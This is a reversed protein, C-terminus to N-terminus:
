RARWQVSWQGEIAIAPYPQSPPPDAAGHGNQHTRPGIANRSATRARNTLRRFNKAIISLVVKATVGTRQVSRMAAYTFLSLPAPAKRSPGCPPGAPVTKAIFARLEDPGGLLELVMM